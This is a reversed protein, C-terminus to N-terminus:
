LRAGELALAEIRCGTDIDIYQQVRVLARTELRANRQRVNSQLEIGPRLGPPFGPTFSFLLLFSCPLIVFCFLLRSLVFCSLVLGFFFM